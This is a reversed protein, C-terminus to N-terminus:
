TWYQKSFDCVHRYLLSVRCSHCRHHVTRVYYYNLPVNGCVYLHFVTCIGYMHFMTKVYIYQVKFACLRTWIHYRHSVIKMCMYDGNVASYLCVSTLYVSQLIEVYTRYGLKCTATCKLFKCLQCRHFM